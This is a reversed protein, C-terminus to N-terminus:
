KSELYILKVFYISVSQLQLKRELEAVNQQLKESENSQKINLFEM